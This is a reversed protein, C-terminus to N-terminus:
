NQLQPLRKVQISDIPVPHGPIWRTGVNMRHDIIMGTEGIMGIEDSLSKGGEITMATM